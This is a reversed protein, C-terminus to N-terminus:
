ECDCVVLTCNNQESASFLVMTAMTFHKPSMKVFCKLFVCVSGDMYYVSVNESVKEAVPLLTAIEKKPLLSQHDTPREQEAKPGCLRGTM